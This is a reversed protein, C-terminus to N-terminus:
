FAVRSNRVGPNSCGAHTLKGTRWRLLQIVLKASKRVGREGYGAVIVPADSPTTLAMAAVDLKEDVPVAIVPTGPLWSKVVIPLNPVGGAVAIVADWEEAHSLCHARLREPERDSSIVDFTYEIGHHALLGQLDAAEVSPLDSKGGVLIGVHPATASDEVTLEANPEKHESGMIRNVTHLHRSVKVAHSSVDHLIGHEVVLHRVVGTFAVNEVVEQLLTHMQVDHPSGDRTVVTITTVRGLRIMVPIKQALEHVHSRECCFSFLRQPSGLEEAVRVLIHPYLSAVDVAFLLVHGRVDAIPATTLYPGEGANFAELVPALEEFDHYYGDFLQIQSGLLDKNGGFAFRLIEQSRAVEVERLTGSTMKPVYAVLADCESVRAADFDEINEKEEPTALQSLSYGEVMGLGGNAVRAWVLGFYPDQRAAKQIAALFAKERDAAGMEELGGKGAHPLSRVFSEYPDVVTYGLGRLRTAYKLRYRALELIGFSLGPGAFYLKKRPFVM